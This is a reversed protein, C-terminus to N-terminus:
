RALTSTTRTSASSTLAATGLRQEASDVSDENGAPESHAADLALDLRDPESPRPLDGVEANAQAHLARDDLKSAANEPELLGVAGLEILRGVM